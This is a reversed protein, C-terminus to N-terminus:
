WVNLLSFTNLSIVFEYILYIRYLFSHNARCPILSVLSEQREQSKFVLVANEAGINLYGIMMMMM